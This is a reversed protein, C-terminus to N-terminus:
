QLVNRKALTEVIIWRCDLCLGETRSQKIAKRAETVAESLFEVFEETASDSQDLGALEILADLHTVIQKERTAESM